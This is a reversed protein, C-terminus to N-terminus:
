RAADAFPIEAEVPMGAKLAGASNNVSVKIRYV